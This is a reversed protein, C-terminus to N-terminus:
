DLRIKQVGPVSAVDDVVRCELNGTSFRVEFEFYMKSTEVDKEVSVDVLELRCTELINRIRELQGELDDSWVKITSYKDRKLVGEVKKLLLLTALSISTVVVSVAYLGAGCALGIAAAIWLCAATTLGRISAGERIIAGAGLFGIGPVVQAAIRSPDVGVPGSGSFNGYVRYFEISSAAFLCAGLSVLLHTRFGAPRGHIERELGILAGLLSALVLRIIIEVNFDM